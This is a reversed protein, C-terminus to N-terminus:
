FPEKGTIMAMINMGLAFYESQKSFKGNVQEPSQWQMTGVMTTFQKVGEEKLLDGKYEKSIGFDVVKLNRRGESDKALVLNAPKLDRHVVNQSHIDRM